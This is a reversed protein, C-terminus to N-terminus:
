CKKFYPSPENMTAPNQKHQSQENKYSFVMLIGILFSTIENRVQITM